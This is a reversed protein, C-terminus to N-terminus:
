ACVSVKVLVTQAILFGVAIAFRSRTRDIFIYLLLAWIERVKDELGMVPKLIGSDSAGGDGLRGYEGAGCTWVEGDDTLIATHSEGAGVQVAKL